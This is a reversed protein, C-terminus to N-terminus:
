RFEDLQDGRHLVEIEDSPFVRMLPVRPYTYTACHASYGFMDSSNFQVVEFGVDEYVKKAIEDEPVGFRPLFVKGNLYVSNIYSRPNHNYLHSRFLPHKPPPPIFKTNFGRDKLIQSYQYDSVIVTNDWAFKAYEDIHGIGSKYPLRVLRGTCKFKYIYVWDPIAADGERNIILCDGQKNAIFNGGSIMYPTHVPEAEFLRHLSSWDTYDRRGVLSYNSYTSVLQLADNEDYVPIPSVDRMMFVKSNDKGRVTSEYYPHWVITVKNRDISGELFKLIRETETRSKSSSILILHENKINKAVKKILNRFQKYQNRVHEVYVPPTNPHIETTRITASMIIYGVPEREMFPRGIYKNPGTSFQPDLAKEDSERVKQNYDAIQKQYEPDMQPRTSELAQPAVGCNQFGVLSATLIFVISVIAIKM